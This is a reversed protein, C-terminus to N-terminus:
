SLLGTILSAVKDSAGGEGMKEKVLALERLMEARYQHDDLLRLIEAAIADPQAADQVFEKVIPKGSVINVLGINDIQILRSMIAYNIKNVIYVIAMPTGLLAVELTATGSATVVANAARVALQTNAEIVTVPVRSNLLAEDVTHRELTPASPLIFQCDPKAKAIHEATQLMCPLNRSLEGGRSGPLLAVVPRADLNLQKRADDVSAECNIQDILPHGVYTVPINANEYFPVEFPFLVAMHDVLKGIKTVRKSRWAWVQPSIYFLVPIGLKRAEAALKLNFDPYDVILLLDPRREHLARKLVNLRKVFRPYNILVDVIGIVALERCDVLLDMGTASLQGAGMGFSHFKLGRHQLALLAHAAHMDSSAEGASVMLTPTPNPM